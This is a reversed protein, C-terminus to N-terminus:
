KRINEKKLMKFCEEANFSKNLDVQMVSDIYEQPPLYNHEKIYHVILSPSAYFEGKILSPILIECFGLPIDRLGNYLYIKEHCLECPSNGRIINFTYKYTSASIFITKLKNKFASPADGISYPKGYCIWGINKIANIEGDLYYSYSSLDDFCKNM